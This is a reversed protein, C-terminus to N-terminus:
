PMKVRRVANYADILFLDGSARDRTVTRVEGLDPLVRALAAGSAGSIKVLGGPRPVTVGNGLDADAELAMSMVLDGADELYGLHGFDLGTSGFGSLWSPAGTTGTLKGVFVDAQGRSRQTRSGLTVSGNFRGALIVDGQSDVAVDACYLVYESGPKYQVPTIWQPGGNRDLKVIVMVTTGVPPDVTRPGQPTMLTIPVVTGGCVISGDDRDVAMDEVIFNFDQPFTWVTKGDLTKKALRFPHYQPCALAQGRSDLELGGCGGVSYASVLAGQPSLVGLFSTHDVVPDVPITRGAFNLPAKGRFYGALVLNDDPGITLGVPYGGDAVGAHGAWRPVLAGDLAAVLTDNPGASVLSTGAIQITGDFQGAVYVNNGAAAIRTLLAPAQWIIPGFTATVERNRDMTLSCAGGGSCDGSWGEFRADKAAAPELSVVSGAALMVRCFTSACSLDPSGRVSGGGEITMSLAFGIPAAPAADLVTPAADPPRTAGDLQGGDAAPSGADAISPGGVVVTGGDGGTASRERADTGAPQVAGRYCRDGSLRFGPPCTRQVSAPFGNASVDRCATGAAGAITAAIMLCWTVQCRSHDGYGLTM